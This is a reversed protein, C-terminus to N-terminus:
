RKAVQSKKRSNDTTAGTPAATKAVSKAGAKNRARAKGQQPLFLVVQQGAKL